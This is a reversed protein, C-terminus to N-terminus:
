EGTRATTWRHNAPSFVVKRIRGDEMEERRAAAEAAKKTRYSQM